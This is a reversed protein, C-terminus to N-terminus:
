APSLQPESSLVLSNRFFCWSVHQGDLGLGESVQNQHRWTAKERGIGYKEGALSSEVMNKRIAENQECGASFAEM